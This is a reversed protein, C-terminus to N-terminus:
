GSGPPVAFSAKGYEGTKFDMYYAFILGLYDVDSITVSFLYNNNTICWYNWKKKRLFHGKLNCQYVPFRSWGAAGPNLNGKSDCLLIQQTLENHELGSMTRFLM